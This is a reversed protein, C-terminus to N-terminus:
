ITIWETVVVATQLRCRLSFPGAPVRDCVFRGMADATVAAPRRGRVEIEGPQAPIVQGLVRGISGMITIEVDITVGPAHFTALRPQGGGRVPEPETLSDFSLAALEADLTRLTYAEVATQVLDSPVPDFLTAAHRLAEELDMDDDDAGLGDLDHDFGNM